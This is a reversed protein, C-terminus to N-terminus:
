YTGSVSFPRRGQADPAGLYRLQEAMRQPADARAAVLGDIVYSRDAGLQITGSVDLPGELSEFRGLLQGEPSPAQDFTVKYSGVEVEKQRLNRLDVTGRLDVIAGKDLRLLPAAVEIQGTWGRPVARIPLEALPWRAALNAVDLKQGSALAFQGQAQSGNGTLAADVALQGRFLRTPHVTWQVNGVPRGDVIVADAAGNWLTGTIAGTTVNAPLSGSILSAPLFLTLTALFAVIALSIVLWLRSRM